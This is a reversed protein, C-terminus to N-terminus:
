EPNTDGNEAIAPNQEDKLTPKLFRRKEEEFDQFYPDEDYDESPDSDSLMEHDRFSESVRRFQWQTTVISM